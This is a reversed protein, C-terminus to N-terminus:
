QEEFLRRQASLCLLCVLKKKRIRIKRVGSLRWEVFQWKRSVSKLNSTVKVNTRVGSLTETKLNMKLKAYVALGWPSDLPLEGASTPSSASPFLVDVTRGPKYADDEFSAFM